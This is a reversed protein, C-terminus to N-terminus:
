CILGIIHYVVASAVNILVLTCWKGYRVQNAILSDNRGMSQKSYQREADNLSDILYNTLEDISVLCLSTKFQCCYLTGLHSTTWNENKCKLMKM